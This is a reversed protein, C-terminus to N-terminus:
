VFIVWLNDINEKGLTVKLNSNLIISEIFELVKNLLGNHQYKGV